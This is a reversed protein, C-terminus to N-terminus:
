AASLVEADALVHGTPSTPDPRRQHGAQDLVPVDRGAAPRLVRDRRPLDLWRSRARDRPRKPAVARPGTSGALECSAWRRSPSQRRGTMVPAVARLAAPPRHLARDLDGHDVIMGMAMAYGLGPNHLVDGSIQSGILSPRRPPHPRRDAPLRHGARRLRERVAPDGHGLISPMLIPLAVHRWYQSSSAGMNEAAERWEKKLGDIAPAIILVMLPFQFYLYVLELGLKSYLSFDRRRLHRLRLGTAPVHHGRRAPRPHLHLGPRAARRRLELGRWLVDYVATRLFRPLGGLIIAYALLFGFIGGVIATVLSIEISTSSRGPSHDGHQPRRLEQADLGSWRRTSAASPASKQLSGTVLYFTPLVIFLFSFLFFPCSGSGARPFRRAPRAPPAGRERVTVADAMSRSRPAWASRRNSQRESRLPRRTASASSALGVEHHDAQTAADLQDLTPFVTGTVDPLKAAADAPIKNGKVLDPYRIPVCYGNLWMNQGEDSYLFEMWLKAANPHPAYASIAQVYM